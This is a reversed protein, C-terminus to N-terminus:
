NSCEKLLSEARPKGWRPEFKDSSTEAAYNKLATELIPKAVAKGGGFFEPTYFLHQAQVYYPRPNKSNAKKAKELWAMADGTGMASRIMPSVAIKMLAIYGQLTYYESPEIGKKETVTVLATARDYLEDKRDDKEANMAALMCSYGAWYGPQWKETEVAAIREFHNTAELFQESTKAAKLMDMGKSMGKEFNGQAYTLSSVMMLILVLSKKM